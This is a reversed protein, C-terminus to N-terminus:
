SIRTVKSFNAYVSEGVKLTKVSDMEEDTLFDHNSQYFEDFTFSDEPLTEITFKASDM